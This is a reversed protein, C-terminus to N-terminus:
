HHTHHNQHKSGNGSYGRLVDYHKIQQDTLIKKQQIHTKLHVFRLQARYQAIENLKLQLENESAKGTAFMADLLAEATIIKAGIEKAEKRMATFLNTTQEKQVPSLFLKDAEDLVHLPGPYHNLEAAKALGMGKGNKLGDIETLSLAKIARTQQGTYPAAEMANVQFMVISTVFIFLSKM